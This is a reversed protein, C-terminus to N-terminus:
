IQVIQPEPEPEPERRAQGAGQAEGERGTGQTSEGEGRERAEQAEREARRAAEQAEERARIHREGVGPVLSAIFLAVAREVRRSTEVWWSVNENRQARQQALIRQAAEQPTPERRAPRSGTPPPQQADNAANNPQQPQQAQRAANAPQGAPAALPVLGELHRQLRQFQEQFMNNPPSCCYLVAGTLLLWRFWSSPETFMLAFVYLRVFLWIRGVILALIDQNQPIELRRRIVVPAGAPQAQNQNQNENQQNPTARTTTRPQAAAQRQRSSYPITSQPRSPTPQPQSHYLGHEPSFLIAQPGMPSSLLWATTTNSPPSLNAMPQRLSPLPPFFPLNFSLANPQAPQRNIPPTNATASAPTVTPQSASRNIENTNPPHNNTAAPQPTGSRSIIVSEVATTVRMRQGNPGVMEQVTTQRQPVNPGHNGNTSPQGQNSSPRGDPTMGPAPTSQMGGGPRPIQQPPFLTQFNPLVQQGAPAGPLMPAMGGFMPPFATQHGAQPIMNQQVQQQLAQLQHQLHQQLMQTQLQTPNGGFNIQQHHVHPQFPLPGPQGPVAAGRAQTPALPPAPLGHPLANNHSTPGSPAPQIM